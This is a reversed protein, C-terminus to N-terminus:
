EEEGKDQAPSACAVCVFIGDVIRMDNRGYRRECVPCKHLTEQRPKVYNITFGHRTACGTLLIKKM